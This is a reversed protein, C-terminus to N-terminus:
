SCDSRRVGPPLNACLISNRVGRAVRVHMRQALAVDAAREQEGEEFMQRRHDNIQELRAARYRQKEIDALCEVDSMLKGEVAKYCLERNKNQKKLIENLILRAHILALGAVPDSQPVGGELFVAQDPSTTVGPLIGISAFELMVDKAPKAPLQRLNSLQALIAQFRCEPPPNAALSRNGLVAECLRQDYRPDDAGAQQAAGFAAALLITAIVRAIM